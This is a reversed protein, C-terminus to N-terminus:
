QPKPLTVGNCNNPCQEGNDTIDKIKKFNASLNYCKYYDTQINNIDQTTVIILNNRKKLKGFYIRIGSGPKDPMKYTASDLEAKLASFVGIPFWESNTNVTNKKLLARKKFDAVAMYANGCTINNIGTLLCTDPTICPSKRYLNAGRILHYEDTVEAASTNFYSTTDKVDYDVHYYKTINDKDNSNFSSVSRKTPVIAITNRGNAYKAFYIRLGDIEAHEQQLAVVKYIWKKSIWISTRKHFSRNDNIFNSIMTDALGIPLGNLTSKFLSDTKSIALANSLAKGGNLTFGFAISVFLIGLALKKM